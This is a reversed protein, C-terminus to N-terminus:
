LSYFCAPLCCPRGECKWRCGAAVCEKAYLRQPNHQAESFARQEVIRNIRNRIVFHGCGFEKAMDVMTMGADYMATLKDMDIDTEVGM